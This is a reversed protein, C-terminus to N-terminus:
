VEGARTAAAKATELEKHPVLVTWTWEVYPDTRISRSNKRIKSRLGYHTLARAVENASREMFYTKLPVWEWGEGPKWRPTRAEGLNRLFQREDDTLEDLDVALGRRMRARLALLEQRRPPTLRDTDPYPQNPPPGGSAAIGSTGRSFERKSSQTPGADMGTSIEQILQKTRM